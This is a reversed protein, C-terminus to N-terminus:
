KNIPQAARRRAFILGAFSGLILCLVPPSFFVIPMLWDARVRRAFVATLGMGIAGGIIWGMVAGAAVWGKHIKRGRAGGPTPRYRLDAVLGGLWRGALAGVLLGGLVIGPFAFVLTPGIRHLQHIQSSMFAGFAIGSGFFGFLAGAYCGARRGDQRNRQSGVDMGPAAPLPTVAPSLPALLARRLELAEHWLGPRDAAPATWSLAFVLFGSASQVHWNPYQAMAELRPARFHRRIADEGSASVTDSLGLVYAIEFDAVAQRTREDEARPDFNIPTLTAREGGTTRRRPICMFFPLRSQAFLIVTWNRKREGEGTGEITMLDFMAAPAGDITGSLRNECLVWREFLPAGPHRGRTDKVEGEEYALGLTRAVERLKEAHAHARRDFQTMFLVGFVASAVAFLAPIELRWGARVLLGRGQALAQEDVDSGIVEAIAAGLVVAVALSFGASVHSKV